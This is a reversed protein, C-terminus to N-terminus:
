KLAYLRLNDTDPTIHQLDGYPKILPKLICVVVTKGKITLSNGKKIVRWRFKELPINYAKMEKSLIKDQDVWDMIEEQSKFSPMTDDSNTYDFNWKVAVNFRTNYADGIYRETTNNLAEFWDIEKEEPYARAFEKSLDVKGPSNATPYFGYYPKALYHESFEGGFVNYYPSAIVNPVVDTVFSDKLAKMLEIDNGLGNSHFVIKTKTSVVNDLKPLTGQTIVKRLSEKTVRDGNIISELSLGKWPNGETIIHIDGYATGDYNKNLWIIIEEMSFANDVVEYEKGLYYSRASKYFSKQYDDIGTIFAIPARLTENKEIVVETEKENQPLVESVIPKKDCSSLQGILLIVGLIIGAKKITSKM